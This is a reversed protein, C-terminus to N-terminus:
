PGNTIHSQLLGCLATFADLPCETVWANTYDLLVGTLCGEIIAPM